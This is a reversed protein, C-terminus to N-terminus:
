PWARRSRSASAPPWLPKHPTGRAGQGERARGDGRVKHPFLAEIAKWFDAEIAPETREEEEEADQTAGNGGRQQQQQQGQQQQQEGGNSRLVGRGPAGKGGKPARKVTGVAQEEGLYVLQMAVGGESLLGPGLRKYVDKLNREM